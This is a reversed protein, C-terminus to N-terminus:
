YTQELSIIKLQDNELGIHLTFIIKEENGTETDVIIEYRSTMKKALEINEVKLQTLQVFMDRFDTYSWENQLENGLMTYANIYDYGEINEFFQEAIFQADALLEEESLALKSKALYPLKSHDVAQVWDSILGYVSSIPISFGIDTDNIGAANIGIVRGSKQSVLPGGSNGHTISASIQYLNNYEYPEISFNHNTGVILGLSVSNEIESPSGIAIVQDGIDGIYEPDIDVPPQNKFEKVHLVAIDEKEGMGVIAAPFYGQQNSLKVMISEANEIVHANTVIHGNSDLLFGSGTKIQYNNSAEIKVISQQTDHIIDKLSFTEEQNSIDVVVTNDTNITKKGIQVYILISVFITLIIFICSLLLPLVRQRRKM